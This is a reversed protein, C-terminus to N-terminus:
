YRAKKEYVEWTNDSTSRLTLNKDGNELSVYYCNQGDGTIEFLETIWYGKYDNKLGMMLNVPLQSSLINRTVALLEGNDAYFAFLIVDNMKFTLKTFKAHVESSMLQANRFDKQFSIQIDHGVEGTNATDSAFSYSIGATLFLAIMLAIKKASNIAQRLLSTSKKM